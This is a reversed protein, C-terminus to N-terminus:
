KLTDHFLPFLNRIFMQFKFMEKFEPKDSFIFLKM